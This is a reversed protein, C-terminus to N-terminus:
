SFSVSMTANDDASTPSNSVVHIDLPLSSPLKLETKPSEHDLGMMLERIEQSWCCYMFPSCCCCCCLYKSGCCQISDAIIMRERLKVFGFMLYLCLVNLFYDATVVWNLPKMFTHGGIVFVWTSVISILTLATVIKIRDLMQQEKVLTSHRRRAASFSNNIVYLKSTFLYAMFVSVTFDYGAYLYVLLAPTHIECYLGWPPVDMEFVSRLSLINWIGIAISIVVVSYRLIRMAHHNITVVNSHKFALELRFCLFLYYSGRIVTYFFVTIRQGYECNVVYPITIKCILAITSSIFMCLASIKIRINMKTKKKRRLKGIFDITLLLVGLLSLVSCMMMTPKIYLLHSAKVLM